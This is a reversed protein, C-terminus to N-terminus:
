YYKRRPTLGYEGGVIWNLSAAKTDGIKVYSIQKEERSTVGPLCQGGVSLLFKFKLPQSTSFPRAAFPLIQSSPHCRTMSRCFGPRSPIKAHPPRVSARRDKGLM